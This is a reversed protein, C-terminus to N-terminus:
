AECKQHLRLMVNLNVYVRFNVIPLGSGFGLKCTSYQPSPDVVNFLKYNKAKWIYCM